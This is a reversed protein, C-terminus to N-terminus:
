GCTKKSSRKYLNYICFFFISDTLCFNEINSAKKNIVMVNDITKLM